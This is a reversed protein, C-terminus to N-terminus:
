GHEGNFCQGSGLGECLAVARAVASQDENSGIAVNAELASGVFCVEEFGDEFSHQGKGGPSKFHSTFMSPALPDSGEDGPNRPRPTQGRPGVTWNDYDIRHSRRLIIRRM